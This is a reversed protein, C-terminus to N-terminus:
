PSMATLGKEKRTATPLLITFDGPTANSEHPPEDHRCKLLSVASEPDEESVVALLVGERDPLHGLVLGFSPRLTDVLQEPMDVLAQQRKRGVADNCEHLAVALRGLRHGSRGVRRGEALEAVAIKLSEGVPRDLRRRKHRRPDVEAVEDANEALNQFEDVQRVLLELPVDVLPPRLRLFIADALHRDSLLDRGQASGPVPPALDFRHVPAKAFLPRRNGFALCFGGNM